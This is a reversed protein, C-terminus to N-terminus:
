EDDGLLLASTVRGDKEDASTGNKLFCNGNAAKVYGAIDSGFVVGVCGSGWKSNWKACASLCDTLSYSVIPLLDNKPHNIGCTANFNWRKGAVMVSPSKNDCDLSVKADTPAVYLGSTTTTGTPSGGTSSSPPASTSASGSSQDDPSADGSKASDTKAERPRQNAALSHLQVKKM